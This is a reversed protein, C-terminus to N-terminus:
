LLKYSDYFEKVQPCRDRYPDSALAAAIPMLDYLMQSTKLFHLVFKKMTDNDSDRSVPQKSEEVNPLEGERLNPLRMYKKFYKLVFNSHEVFKRM